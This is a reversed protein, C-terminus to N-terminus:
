KLKKVADEYITYAVAPPTRDASLVVAMASSLAMTVERSDKARDM